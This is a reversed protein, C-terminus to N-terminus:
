PAVEALYDTIRPYTLMSTIDPINFISNYDDDDLEFTNEDSNKKASVANNYAKYMQPSLPPIDDGFNDLQIETTEKTYYDLKKNVLALELDSRKVSEILNDYRKLLEENFLLNQERYAIDVSQSDKQFTTTLIASDELAGFKYGEWDLLASNNANTNELNAIDFARKIENAIALENAIQGLIPVIQEQNIDRQAICCEYMTTAVLALGDTIALGIMEGIKNGEFLGQNIPPKPTLPVSAPTPKIPAVSTGGSSVPEPINNTLGKKRYADLSADIITDIVPKVLPFQNVVRVAFPDINSNAKVLNSNSIVVASGM